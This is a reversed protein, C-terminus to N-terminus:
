CKIEFIMVSNKSSVCILKANMSTELLTVGQLAVEVLTGGKKGLQTINMCNELLFNFILHKGKNLIVQFSSNFAISFNIPMYDLEVCRILNHLEYNRVLFTKRAQSILYVISKDNPCFEFIYNEILLEDRNKSPQKVENKM